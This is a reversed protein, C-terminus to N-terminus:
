TLHVAIGEFFAIQPSERSKPDDMEPNFFNVPTSGDISESARERSM